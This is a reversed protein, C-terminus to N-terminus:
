GKLADWELAQAAAITGVEALVAEDEARIRNENSPGNYYAAVIVPSGSPPWFIAVDNYANAYSRGVATGTKDGSKWGPPIGARIRKMGTQTEVMWGILKERSAANLTKKKENMIRQDYLLRGLLWVMARPSTTDRKEGPPVDNMETEYRDLRISSRWRAFIATLADPGGLRRILLNAATNDSTTQTAKALAEATMRRRVLNVQTVPSNPLMDTKGYRLLEDAPLSGFQGAELVAAALLVKFTSCLAFDENYRLGELQDSEPRFIAVGLRGGSKAELARLAKNALPVYVRELKCGTLSLAASGALMTRRDIQM